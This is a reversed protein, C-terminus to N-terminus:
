APPFGAVPFSVPTPQPTPGYSVPAPIVLPPVEKPYPMPVMTPIGTAPGPAMSPPGPFRPLRRFKFIIYLLLPLSLLLEILWAFLQLFWSSGLHTDYDAFICQGRAQVGLYMIWGVLLWLNATLVICLYTKLLKSTLFRSWLLVLMPFILEVAVFIISLVSFARTAVLAGECDRIRQLTNGTTTWEPCNSKSEPPQCYRWIGYERLSSKSWDTIATAIIVFILAILHLVLLVGFLPRLHAM